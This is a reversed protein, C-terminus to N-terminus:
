PAAQRVLRRNRTHRAHHARRTHPHVITNNSLLQSIIGADGPVSQGWVLLGGAALVAGVSGSCDFGVTHGDYGPGGPVGISPTGAQTHGGGWVYPYNDGNLQDAESIMNAIVTGAGPQSAGPGTTYSPGLPLGTVADLPVMGKVLTL